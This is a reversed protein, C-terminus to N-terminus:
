TLLKPGPADTDTRPVTDPTRTPQIVKIAQNPQAPERFPSAEVARPPASLPPKIMARERPPPPSSRMPEASKQAWAQTTALAPDRAVVAIAVQALVLSTLTLVGGWGRAITAPIVENTAKNGLTPVLAFVAIVVGLVLLGQVHAGFPTYWAIKRTRTPGNLVLLLGLFFLRTFFYLMALCGALMVFPNMQIDIWPQDRVKLLGVAVESNDIQAYFWPVRFMGLLWGGFAAAVLAIAILRAKMTFDNRRGGDIDRAAEALM